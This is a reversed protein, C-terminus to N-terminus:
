TFENNYVSHLWYCLDVVIILRLLVQSIVLAIELLFKFKKGGTKMALAPYDGNAKEHASVLRDFGESSFYACALFAITSFAWGADSFGKSLYLVGIAVMGKFITFYMQTTGLSASIESKKEEKIDLVITTNDTNLCEDESDPDEMEHTDRKNGNIM